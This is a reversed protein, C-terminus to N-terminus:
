PRRALTDFGPTVLKRRPSAAVGDRLEEQTTRDGASTVEVEVVKEGARVDPLCEAWCPPQGPQAPM